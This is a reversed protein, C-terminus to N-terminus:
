LRRQLVEANARPDVEIRRVSAAEIQANLADKALLGTEVGQQLTFPELMVGKGARMCVTMVSCHVLGPLSRVREIERAAVEGNDAFQKRYDSSALVLYAELRSSLLLRAILILLCLGIRSAHGM